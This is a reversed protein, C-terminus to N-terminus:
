APGPKKWDAFLQALLRVGFGTGGKSVEGDNEDVFAPGAMDLHAWPIGEGVFEQLFLAATLAGGHKSKGINRLDAVDSDLGKRLHSPMPLPWMAEGAEDAAARVQDLWGQHNGMLGATRAGLATMCAGTLTAVDIIADPEQETALSLGDALILRGEADTNLVEVTKSNRITVVDAVRTADPGVMNDTLPLFATARLRPAVEPLLTMAALVAAAGAMDLKMDTMAEPSKMSLGGSDFTIGKGVLAIFGRPQEPEHSIQVLRPPLASGRNVGLLGGLRAAEIGERDLVTVSLGARGAVAAAEDAFAPATLTGGPTNVLDRALCVAEAVRVGRGVAAGVRQGGRGVITAEALRDEDAEPEKFRGYRYAGLALGEALAQAAAPRATELAFDLLTTAVTRHRHSARAVAAGARRLTAPDAAAGHGLGVVLCLGHDVHAVFATEDAQGTFGQAHLLAEDFGSTDAALHDQRAGVALLDVQEPVGSAFTVTPPM